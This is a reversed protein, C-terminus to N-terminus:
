DKRANHDRLANYLLPTSEQPNNYVNSEAAMNLLQKDVIEGYEEDDMVELDDVDFDDDDDEDEDVDVDDGTEDDQNGNLQKKINKMIMVFIVAMISMTGGVIFAAMRQKTWWNVSCGTQENDLQVFIHEMLNTLRLGALIIREELMPTFYNYYAEDVTTANCYKYLQSNNATSPFPNSRDNDINYCDIERLLEFTEQGWDIVYWSLADGNLCGDVGGNGDIDTNKIRNYLKEYRASNNTLLQDVFQPISNAISDNFRKQLLIDNWVQELSAQKTSVFPLNIDMSVKEGDDDRRWAVHSPSHIDAVLAGLLALESFKQQQETELKSIYEQNNFHDSSLQPEEHYTRRNKPQSARLMRLVTAQYKRYSKDTYTEEADPYFTAYLNATYNVIATPTCRTTDPSITHKTTKTFSRPKCTITFDTINEYTQILNADDLTWYHLMNTWSPFRHSDEEVAQPFTRGNLAEHIRKNADIMPTWTPHKFFVGQTAAIQAIMQRGLIGFGVVNEALGLFLLFGLVLPM